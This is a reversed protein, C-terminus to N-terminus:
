ADTATPDANRAGVPRAELRAITAALWDRDARRLTIVHDLALDLTLSGGHPPVSVPGALLADLRALRQRLCDLAEPLPLHNLFMLGIDGAFAPADLTALNHHLLDAFLARGSGTVSYVKRPPRNGQQEVTVSIHGAGALRDLLAYATPKKMTVVQCLRREIFENIEYGHRSQTTLVGLLLLAREDWIGSQDVNAERHRRM